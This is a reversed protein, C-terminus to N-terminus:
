RKFDEDNDTNLNGSAAEVTQLGNNEIVPPRISRTKRETPGVVGVIM